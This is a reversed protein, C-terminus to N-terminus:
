MVDLPRCRVFEDCVAVSVSLMPKPDSAVTTTM